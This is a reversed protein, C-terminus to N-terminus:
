EAKKIEGCALRAGANGAPDSKYDDSQAHIVLATGGEKLLSTEGKGLTAGAVVATAKATGDEKVELNPLDGVHKGGENQMGHHKHLPNFHGGASSFDPPTCLGKEHIHMGHKGPALGSVKVEVKVGQKQETLVATGIKKGDAGMIDATAKAKGSALATVPVLLLMSSVLLMAKKM